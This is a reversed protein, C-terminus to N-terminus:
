AISIFLSLYLVNGESCQERTKDKVAMNVKIRGGRWQKSAVVLRNEM